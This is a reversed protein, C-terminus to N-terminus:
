PLSRKQPFQIAVSEELNHLSVFLSLSHTEYDLTTYHQTPDLKVWMENRKKGGNVHQHTRKRTAPLQVLVLDRTDVLVGEPAQCEQLNQSYSDFHKM